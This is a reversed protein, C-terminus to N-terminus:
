RRRRNCIWVSRNKASYIAHKGREFAALAQSKHDVTRTAITVADIDDRACLVRYNEHVDAIGHKKALAEARSRGGAIAVVEAQPHGKLEPIHCVNAFNGTGIVGCRLKRGSNVTM